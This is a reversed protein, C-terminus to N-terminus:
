YMPICNASSPTSHLHGESTAPLAGFARFDLLAAVGVPMAAFGILAAGGEFAGGVDFVEFGDEADFDIEFAALGRATGTTRTVLLPRERKLICSSINRYTSELTELQLGTAKESNSKDHM